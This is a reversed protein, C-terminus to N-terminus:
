RLSIMLLLITSRRLIPKLADALPPHVKRRFIMSFTMLILMQYIIKLIMLKSSHSVGDIYSTTTCSLSVKSASDVQQHYVSYDVATSSSSSASSTSKSPYLSKGSSASPRSKSLNGVYSNAERKSYSSGPDTKGPYASPTVKEHYSSISKNIPYTSAPKMNQPYAAAPRQPYSTTSVDPKESYSLSSVSSTSKQNYGHRVAPMQLQKNLDLFSPQETPKEAQHYGIASSVSHKPPYASVPPKQPYGSSVALSSSKHSTPYTSVPKNPYVSPKDQSKQPYVFLSKSEKSLTLPVSKLDTNMLLVVARSCKLCLKNELLELLIFTGLCRFMKKIVITSQYRQLFDDWALGSDQSLKHFIM